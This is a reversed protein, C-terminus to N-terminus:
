SYQHEDGHTAAGRGNARAISKFQNNFVELLVPDVRTDAAERGADTETDRLILYDRENRLAVFGADVVVTGTADLVLAPGPVEEGIPFSERRYVPAEVLRRGSWLMTTRIPEGAGPEASPLEPKAASLEVTVRLTAAEVPTSPGCTDSSADIYRRSRQACRARNAGTSPLHPKPAGTAFRSKAASVGDRGPALTGRSRPM